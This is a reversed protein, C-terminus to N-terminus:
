SGFNDPHIFAAINPRPLKALLEFVKERCAGIPCEAPFVEDPLNIHRLVLRRWNHVILIRLATIEFTSLQAWNDSCIKELNLNLEQYGHLIEHTLISRSVWDPLPGDYHMVFASKTPQLEPVFSIWIHDNLLIWRPDSTEISLKPDTIMVSLGQFAPASQAYIRSSAAASETRSTSTLFYASRRGSKISDIWGDKRLRHLAVRMAQPKIELHESLTKLATGSVKSGPEQAM